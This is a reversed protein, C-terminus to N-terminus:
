RQTNEQQQVKFTLEISVQGPRTHLLRQFFKAHYIAVCRMLFMTIHVLSLALGFGFLLGLLVNLKREYARCKAMDYRRYYSDCRTYGLNDVLGTIGLSIGFSCIVIDFILNLLLPLPQSHLFLWICNLISVIAAPIALFMMARLCWISGYFGVPAHARFVMVTIAFALAIISLALALGTLIFISRPARPRPQSGPETSPETSPINVEGDEDPQDFLLPTDELSARPSILCSAADQAM